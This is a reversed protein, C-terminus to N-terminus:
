GASPSSESRPWTAAGSAWEPHRALALDFEQHQRAARALALAELEPHGCRAQLRAAAEHNMGARVHADMARLWARHPRDTRVISRGVLCM